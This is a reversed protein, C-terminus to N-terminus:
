ELGPNTKNVTKDKQVQEKGVIHKKWQVQNDFQKLVIDRLKEGFEKNVPHVVDRYGNESSKDPRSPMAVFNEGTKSNENVRVSNIKFADGFQVTALGKTANQSDRLPTVFAKIDHAVPEKSQGDHKRKGNNYMDVLLKNVAAKLDASEQKMKGNKDKLFEVIDRFNGDKDKSQPYGVFHGNSGMVITLNNIAIANDINISAM